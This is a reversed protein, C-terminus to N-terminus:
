NKLRDDKRWRQLVDAPNELRHLPIGLIWGATEGICFAGGAYLRCSMKYKRNGTFNYENM